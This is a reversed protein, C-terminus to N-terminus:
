NPSLYAEDPYDGGTLDASIIRGALWAGSIRSRRCAATFKLLRSRHRTKEYARYLALLNM